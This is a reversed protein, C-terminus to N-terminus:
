WSITRSLPFCPVMVVFDGYISPLELCSSQIDRGLWRRSLQRHLCYKHLLFATSRSCSRESSPADEDCRDDAGVSIQESCIWYKLWRRSMASACFSRRACTLICASLELRYAEGFATRLNYKRCCSPSM